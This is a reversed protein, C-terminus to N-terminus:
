CNNKLVFFVAIKVGPTPRLYPFIGLMLKDPGRRKKNKVVSKAANTVKTRTTKAVDQVDDYNLVVSKKTAIKNNSSQQLALADM